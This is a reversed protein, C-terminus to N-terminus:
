EDRGPSANKTLEAIFTEESRRRQECIALGICLLASLLLFVLTNGSSAGFLHSWHDIVGDYAVALAFIGIILQLM